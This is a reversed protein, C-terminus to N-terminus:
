RALGKPLRPRIACERRTAAPWGDTPPRQDAVPSGASSSRGSPASCRCCVPLQSNNRSARTVTGSLVPSYSSSNASASRGYPTKPRSWDTSRVLRRAAAANLRLVSIWTLRNRLFRCRSGASGCMM